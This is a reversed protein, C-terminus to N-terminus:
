HPVSSLDSLQFSDTSSGRGEISGGGGELPLCSSAVTTHICSGSVWSQCLEKSGLKPVPVLVSLGRQSQPSSETSKALLSHINSVGAMFM